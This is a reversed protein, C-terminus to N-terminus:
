SCIPAFGFPGFILEWFSQLPGCYLLRGQQYADLFFLCSTCLFLLLIIAGCGLLVNRRCSPAATEEEAIINPQPAFKPAAPTQKVAPPAAERETKSPMAAAPKSQPLPPAPLEVPLTSEAEYLLQIAEGFEIIDGDHLPTLGVIRRNNVFTGNTSGLDEIAYDTGQKVLRAHKRSIEPDTIAVDNVSSRGITLQDQYLDFTQNPQPGKQVVLHATPRDAFQTAAQSM